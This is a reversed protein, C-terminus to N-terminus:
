RGPGVFLLKVRGVEITDGSALRVAGAVRQGNVQTGNTSRLDRLVWHGGNVRIEAHHASVSEDALVIVNDPDRGLPTTGLLQITQGPHLASQGPQVVKLQAVSDAPAAAVDRRLDRWLVSVLRALFLYLIAVLALRLVLPVLDEIQV